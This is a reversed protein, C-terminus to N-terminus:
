RSKVLLNIAENMMEEQTKEEANEPNQICEILNSSVILGITRDLATRSASLQTIVSKCDNEEDMMRLIGRIQGEIRKLRNKMQDNYMM